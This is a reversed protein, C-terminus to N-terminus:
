MTGQPKQMIVAHLVGKLVALVSLGSEQADHLLKEGFFHLTVRVNASEERHRPVLPTPLKEEEKLEEEEIWAEM